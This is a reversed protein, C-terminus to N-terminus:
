IVYKIDRKIKDEFGTVILTHQVTIKKLFAAYCVSLGSPTETYDPKFGPGILM